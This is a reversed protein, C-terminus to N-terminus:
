NADSGLRKFVRDESPMAVESSSFSCHELVRNKMKFELECIVIGEYGGLNGDKRRMLVM